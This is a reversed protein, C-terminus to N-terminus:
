MYACTLSVTVIIWIPRLPLTVLVQATLKVAMALTDLAYLAWCILPHLAPVYQLMYMYGCRRIQLSRIWVVCYKSFTVTELFLICFRSHSNQIDAPLALRARYHSALWKAIGYELRFNYASVCSENWFLLMMELYVRQDIGTQSRTLTCLWHSADGSYRRLPLM